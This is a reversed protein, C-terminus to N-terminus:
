EEPVSARQAFTLWSSRLRELRSRVEEPRDQPHPPKLLETALEEPSPDRRGHDAAEFLASVVRGIIDSSNYGLTQRALAHLDHPRPNRGHDELCKRVLGARETANPWDFFFPQDIRGARLLAQPLGTEENATAVLILCGGREQMWTLLTQLVRLETDGAVGAEGFCKEIEDIWLVAPGMREALALARRFNAESEGLYRGMLRGLDLRLLPWGWTGALAHACYSKGCGPMGGLLMGRPPPCIGTAVLEDLAPTLVGGVWAKFNDLGVVDHLRVTPYSLELLGRHRVLRQKDRRLDELCEPTLGGRRAASLRLSDRVESASLGSAHWAYRPLLDPLWRPEEAAEVVERLLDGMEAPGVPELEFLQTAKTIEPPIRGVPSVVVVTRRPANGNARFVSSRLEEALGRLRELAAEKAAVRGAGPEDDTWHHYAAWTGTDALDWSEMGHDPPPNRSFARSVAFAGGAPESVVPVEDLFAHADLLLLVAAREQSAFWDLVGIFEELTGGTPSRAPLGPEEVADDEAELGRTVGAALRWIYCDRGFRGAITQLRRVAAAEDETEVWLLVAGTELALELDPVFGGMPPRQSGAERLAAVFDRMTKYRDRHASALARLLVASVAEPIGSRVQVAPRAAFDCIAEKWHNEELRHEFPHRGTLLEYAIVALAWQDSREPLTADLFQWQEPARYRDNAASRMPRLGAQQLVGLRGVDLLYYQPVTADPEYRRRIERPSLEGHFVNQCHAKELALGVQEVLQVVDSVSWPAWDHPRDDLSSGEVFDFVLYFPSGAEQNVERIQALHPVGALRRQLERFHEAQRAAVDSHQYLPVALAVPQDGEREAYYVTSYTGHGIERVLRYPGVENLPILRPAQQLPPSTGGTSRWQKYLDELTRATRVDVGVVREWQQEAAFIVARVGQRNAADLKRQAGRITELLGGERQPLAASAATNAALQDGTWAARMACAVASGMSNGELRPRNLDSIELRVTLHPHERRFAKTQVWALRWSELLSEDLAVLALSVPDPYYCSLGEASLLVSLRHVTAWEPFSEYLLIPVTTCLRDKGHTELSLLHLLVRRLALYGVAYLGVRKVLKELLRALQDDFASSGAECVNGIQVEPMQTYARQFAQASREGYELFDSVRNPQCHAIAASQHAYVLAEMLNRAQTRRRNAKESEEARGYQALFGGLVASDLLSLVHETLKACQNEGVDLNRHKFPVLVLCKMGVLHGELEHPSPDDRLRAVLRQMQETWGTAECVVCKM